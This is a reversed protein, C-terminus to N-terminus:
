WRSPTGPLACMGLHDPGNSADHTRTADCHSTILAMKNSSLVQENCELYLERPEAAGDAGADGNDEDEFSCDDANQIIEACCASSQPTQPANSSDLPLLSQAEELQRTTRTRRSMMRPLPQLPSPQSNRWPVSATQVAELNASSATTASSPCM